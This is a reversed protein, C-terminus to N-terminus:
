SVRQAGLLYEINGDGGAIPSPIPGCSKWGDCADIWTHIEETVQEGIEKKVLGGKGINERGAEFQPKVLFLGFAGPPMMQLAPPLALRLSIFSVDSVLCEPPDPFMTPMLDRANIGEMAVVRGHNALSHHLQGHGVDVSYVTRAGRELLVQTFGGTSAGIDLCAKGNPRFDFHDLGAVLKLASRSVYKSAPDSLEIEASRSTMLGPKIVPKDDVRVHGRLIADRARARSATLGKEVLLQDLRKKRSM